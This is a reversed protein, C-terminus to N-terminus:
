LPLETAVCTGSEPDRLMPLNGRYNDVEDAWYEGEFPWFQWDQALVFITTSGVDGHYVGSSSVERVQQLRESTIEIGIEQARMSWDTLEANFSMILNSIRLGADTEKGRMDLDIQDILTQANALSSADRQLLARELRLQRILNRIEVFDMDALVFRTAEIPLAVPDATDIRGYYEDLALWYEQPSATNAVFEAVQGRMSSLEIDFAEIAQEAADLNCTSLYTAAEVVYLEAHYNDSYYPSRLTHVSGITRDWDFKMLYAWMSEYLATHHRFSETPIKNYYYLAADFANVEATMRALAMYGLEVVDENDNSTGTIIANQFSQMATTLEGDELFMVGDLYNAAAAQHAQGNIRSLMEHARSFDGYLWFFKGLFYNWKSQFEQPNNAVSISVLDEFAPSLFAVDNSIQYLREFGDEFFDSTSGFLVVELAEEAIVHRFGADFMGQVYCSMATQYEISNPTPAIETLFEDCMVAAELSHGRRLLRDANALDSFRQQDQNVQQDEAQIQERMQERQQQM